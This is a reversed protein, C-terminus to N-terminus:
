VNLAAGCTPCVKPLSATAKDLEGRLSTIALTQRSAERCLQQLRAAQTTAKDDITIKRLVAEAKRLVDPQLYSVERTKAELRDLLTRLGNADDRLETAIGELVEAKALAKEAEPLSKYRTVREKSLLLDGKAHDLESKVTRLKGGVNAMATDIVDLRTIENLQRAVEGATNSLLFPADFQFQWNIDGMNVAKQIAEPVSAGFAEFRQQEGEYGDDLVYVNKGAGKKLRLVRCNDMYVRVKTEDEGHRRFEDGAPENCLGWLLARAGATKGSDSPGVIVNVGPHFNIETEAHSQFNRIHISKIM